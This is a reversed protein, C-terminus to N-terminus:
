YMFTLVLSENQKTVDLAWHRINGLCALKIISTNDSKSGRTELNRRKLKKEVKLSSL